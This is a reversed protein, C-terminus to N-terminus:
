YLVYNSDNDEDWCGFNTFVGNNNKPKKRLSNMLNDYVQKNKEEKEKKQKIQKKEERNKKVKERMNALHALQKESCTKKEKKKPKKKSKPQILEKTIEITDFGYKKMFVDMNTKGMSCNCGACIPRLNDIHVKGGNKESIVHGCHWNATTIKELKCCYCRADNKDKIYKLWVTNRVAAPIREKKGM